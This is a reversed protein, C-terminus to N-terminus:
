SFIRHKCWQCNCPEQWILMYFHNPQPNTIKWSLRGRRFSKSPTDSSNILPRTAQRSVFEILKGNTIIFHSHTLNVHLKIHGRIPMASSYSLHAPMYPSYSETVLKAKLPQGILYPPQFNTEVEIISSAQNLQPHKLKYGIVEKVEALSESDIATFQFKIPASYTKQPIYECEFTYQYRHNGLATITSTPNKIHFDYFQNPDITSINTQTPTIAQSPVNLVQFVPTSDGSTYTKLQLIQVPATLRNLADHLQPGAEDILITTQPPAQPDFLLQDLFASLAQNNTIITQQTNPLLGIQTALFQKTKLKATDTLPTFKAVQVMIHRYSDHRGLEIEILFLRPRQPKSYDILYGDPITSFNGSTIRQKASIYHARNGFIATAHKIVLQELESERHFKTLSYRHGRYIIHDM